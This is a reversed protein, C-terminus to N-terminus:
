PRRPQPWLSMVVRAALYGLVAGAAVDVPYHAARPVQVGSVLAAVGYAPLALDPRDHGLVAAVAVAGATHGSPFSTEDGDHGEDAERRYRHKEIMVHPRTRRVRNKILRKIGNALGHAALMRLGTAALAPRGTLAGGLAVSGCLLSLPTQDAIESFGGLAKVVPHHRHRGAQRAADKDAQELPGSGDSQRSHANM